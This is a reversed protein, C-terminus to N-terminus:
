DALCDMGQRAVGEQVVKGDGPLVVHNELVRYAEAQRWEDQPLLPGRLAHVPCLPFRHLHAGGEQAACLSRWPTTGVVWRCDPEVGPRAGLM